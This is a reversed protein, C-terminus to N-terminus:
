FFIPSLLFKQARVKTTPGSVLLFVGNKKKLLSVIFRMLFPVNFPMRFDVSCWAGAFVYAPLEGCGWIVKGLWWGDSKGDFFFNGIM